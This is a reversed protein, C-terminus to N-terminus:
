IEMNQYIPLLMAAYILVIMLAVFLFILPQILNMSTHLKSFFDEWCEKAYLTLETGLKSKVQGYEIILSLEKRFFPYTQIQQHFPIGSKLARELDQGVERFLQSPQEQMLVLIQPLELGQGILNGWERAYYATLYTTVFRGIIPWSALLSFVRKKSTRRYCYTLGLFILVLLGLNAFFLLPFHQIIQTALNGEDMQPILYHRLGLMILVLFTLLILPYSAVEVMKKRIGMLQTLYDQITTLSLATNGHTEALSLQTVVNDSFQLDSLIASLSKGALLGKEMTTIADQTMLHSRKLFDVMEALHFGSAFLNSFLEIIKRQNTLRLKKPKQKALISIDQQLFTMLKNTGSTQATAKSTKMPM